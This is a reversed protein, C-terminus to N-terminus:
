LAKVALKHGDVTKNYADGNMMKVATTDGFVGSEMWAEELGSGELHHRIAKMFNM